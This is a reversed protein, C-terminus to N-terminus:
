KALILKNVFRGKDTNVDVLYIGPALVSANITNIGNNTELQFNGILKGSMDMVKASSPNIGADMLKIQINGDEVYTFGIVKAQEATIAENIDGFRLFYRGEASEPESKTLSVVDGLNLRTYQNLKKDEPYVKVGSPINTMESVQVTYVGLHSIGMPVVTEKTIQPLVSVALKKAVDESETLYIESLKQEVNFM